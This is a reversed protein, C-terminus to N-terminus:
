VTKGKYNALKLIKDVFPGKKASYGKSRSLDKFDSEPLEKIAEIKLNEYEKKYELHSILYDRFLIQREWYTHLPCAISLHYKVPDGKRLFIREVSSMDPKYSYGVKELLKTFYSINQISSVLVAIDIIPKALLGPIATSGIHQIDIIENGLIEKLRKEESLFEDHWLENHESLKIIDKQKELKM